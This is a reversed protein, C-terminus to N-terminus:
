SPTLPSNGTGLAGLAFALPLDLALFGALSLMQCSHYLALVKPNQLESISQWYAVPFDVPWGEFRPTALHCFLGKIMSEHQAKVISIWHHFFTTKSALAKSMLETGMEWSVVGGEELLAACAM